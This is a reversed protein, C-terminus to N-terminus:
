DLPILAGNPELKVFIVSSADLADHKKPTFAPAYNKIAGEFEPLNELAARVDRGNSSQALDIARAVLRAADYAQAIGVPSPIESASAYPGAQMAANALRMALPRNNNVFTFTQIIELRVLKLDDGVLTHLTGGVTGWHAIVPLRLEPARSAVEKILVAAEMENGVFLIAQAGADLCQSYFESFSKEGWNFWRTLPISLGLDRSQNKIVAESSRGWATNPLLACATSAGVKTVIRKILAPVGWSDKLSVRFAYSPDYGNDTIQDASGWVSIIPIQLRQAEPLSEVTIPSYKGGFIAVMDKQQALDLFNDKGRATLGKNDTTMLRLPRGGLVGGSANIDEIAQNLGFEIATAATNTKQGFAGDFGLYVPPLANSSTAAAPPASHVIGQFSLLGLVIALALARARAHLVATMTYKDCSRNHNHM